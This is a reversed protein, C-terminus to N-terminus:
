DDFDQGLQPQGHALGKQHQADAQRGGHENAARQAHQQEQQAGALRQVVARGEGHQVPRDVGHPGEGEDDQQDRQHGERAPQGAGGDARQSRGHRQGHRGNGVQCAQHVLAQAIHRAAHDLGRVGHAGRLQLDDPAHEDDLRARAQHQRQGHQGHAKQRVRGNGAHHAAAANAVQGDAVAVVAELGIHHHEGHGDEHGHDLDDLEHAVRRGAAQVLAASRATWVRKRREERERGFFPSRCSRM